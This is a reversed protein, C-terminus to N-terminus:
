AGVPEGRHVLRGAVYTRHVLREDGLTFLAFLTEEPSTNHSRRASLATADPRLVVLDAEMGTTLSGVRDAIDLAEAGARTALHLLTRGPLPTDYLCAIKYAEAGTHLMSFSTGGGVDTGLGVTLGARRARPYDLLGSGLFLNSTPAFAISAGAEALRQRDVDDLYIGHAYISRERVLGYADYVDLYSRARPYLEAVWAVEDRNEALHSHIYTDPFERALRTAERMQRESSTPVFRPSIAYALRDVKHWREILERSDRYGAEPTDQVNSPCNRDMLLKGAILRMRRQHAAELLAEASVRHVSAMVMATTTGNALLQSLFFEATEAAITPDAFSAEVPYTYRELWALLHEGYSAIIDTQPLHIHCDIFGPVVLCDRYEHVPLATTQADILESAPGVARITGDEVLLGGDQWVRLTETGPSLHDTGSADTDVLTGRIFFANDGIPSDPM